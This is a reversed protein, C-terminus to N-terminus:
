VIFLSTISIIMLTLKIFFWAPLSLHKCQFQDIWSGKPNLRYWDLNIPANLIRSMFNRFQILGYDFGWWFSFLMVPALAWWQYWTIDSFWAACLWFVFSIVIRIVQSWWYTPRSKGADIICWNRFIEVFILLAYTIFIWIM